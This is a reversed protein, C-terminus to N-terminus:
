ELAPEHYAVSEVTNSSQWIRVCISGGDRIEQKPEFFGGIVAETFKTSENFTAKITYNYGALMEFRVYDEASIKTQSEGEADTVTIEVGIVNIIDEGRRMLTGADDVYVASALVELATGEPARPHYGPTMEWEGRELIKGSYADISLYEGGVEDPDIHTINEIYWVYTNFKGGLYHFDPSAALLSLDEPAEIGEELGAERAIDIAESESIFECKEPDPIGNERLIDGDPSVVVEIIENDVFDYEPMDFYYVLLYVGPYMARWQEGMGSGTLYDVDKFSINVEFFETGVKSIIFGDIKEVAEDATSIPGLNAPPSTQGCGSGVTASVTLLFLCIVIAKFRTGEMSGKTGPRRREVKM